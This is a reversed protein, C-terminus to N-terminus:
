KCRSLAAGALLLLLGGSSTFVLTLVALRRRHPGDIRVDMLSEQRARAGTAREVNGALREFEEQARRREEEQQARVELRARERDAELQEKAALQELVRRVEDHLEAALGMHKGLAQRVAGAEEQARVRLQAIAAEIAEQRRRLARLEDWLPAEDVGEVRPTRSSALPRKTDPPPGRDPM